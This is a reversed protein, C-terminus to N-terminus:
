TPQSLHHLHALAMRWRLHACSRSLPSFHNHETYIYIQSSQSALNVDLLHEHILESICVILPLDLRYASALTRVM